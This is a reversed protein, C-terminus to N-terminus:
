WFNFNIFVSITKGELDSIMFLEPLKTEAIKLNQEVNKLLKEWKTKWHSEWNVSTHKVNM